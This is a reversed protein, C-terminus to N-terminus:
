PKPNLNPKMLQWSSSLAVEVRKLRWLFNFVRLYKTMVDDTFVTSLPSTTVYELSFVDWGVEQGVHPMMKVKLRNIIDSEDYQANSARVASELTGMLKYASVESAKKGLDPGVLDMLYQIFDGQGLLLYRKVALCQQRFHFKDFLIQMLRRDIRTSAERVVAELAGAQGYELAAASAAHAVGAMEEYWGRDSCCTRLFNISKGARLIKKALDLPVFPLLMSKELRYRRRWLDGEPVSPDAAVFFEKYADELEGEYLWRRIMIFIPSCVQRLIRTVFGCAFPDGHLAHAHIAAALAGGRVFKASDVLVAMLRMRQAAEATWVSLRRLTLYPGAGGVAHQAQAELVTVLRYYDSLEAQLATCFAQGVSGLKEAAGSAAASAVHSRVRRFMWGLECLRRLLERTPKPIGVAPDVIYSDAAVDFKIHQGDIGQLVFVVDRVLAEEPIEFSEKDRIELYQKHAAAKPGGPTRPALTAAEAPTAPRSETARSAASGPRSLSLADGPPAPALTSAFTYAAAGAGGGAADKGDRHRDEAIAKIAHLLACRSQLGPQDTLRRHLEQFRLVEGGKGAHSLLRKISDSASSEDTAMSPAIRSGIIRIAYRFANGVLKDTQEDKRGDGVIIRQALREVLVATRHEM